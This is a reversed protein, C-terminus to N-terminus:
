GRRGLRARAEEACDGRHVLRQLPRGRLGLIRDPVWAARDRRVPLRCVYCRGIVM